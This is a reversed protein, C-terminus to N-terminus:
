AAKEQGTLEERWVALLEGVALLPALAEDWSPTMSFAAHPLMEANRVLYQLRMVADLDHTDRVERELQVKEAALDDVLGKVYLIDGHDRCDQDTMVAKLQLEPLEMWLAAHRLLKDDSWSSPDTNDPQSM